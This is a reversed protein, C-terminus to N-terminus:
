TEIFIIEKAREINLSLAFLYTLMPTLVIITSVLGPKLTQLVWYVVTYPLAIATLGILLSFALYSKTLSPLRSHRAAFGALLCVALGHQVFAYVFPHIGADICYRGLALGGGWSVGLVVLLTVPLLVPSFRM